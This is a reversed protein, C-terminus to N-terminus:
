TRWDIDGKIYGRRLIKGRKIARGFLLVGGPYGGEGPLAADHVRGPWAGGHVSAV